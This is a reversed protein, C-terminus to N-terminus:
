EQEAEEDMKAGCDSCYANYKMCDIYHYKRCNSCYCKFSNAGSEPIWHAHVIPKVYKNKNFLSTIIAFGFGLIIGLVLKM